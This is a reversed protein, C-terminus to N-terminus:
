LCVYNFTCRQKANIFYGVKRGQFLIALYKENAKSTREEINFVCGCVQITNNKMFGDSAIVFKKRRYDSYAEGDKFANLRQPAKRGNITIEAYRNGSDKYEGTSVVKVEVGKFLDKLRRFM